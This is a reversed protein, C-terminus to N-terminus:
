LAVLAPCHQSPSMRLPPTHLRCHLRPATHGTGPAVGPVAHATPRTAAHSTLPLTVVQVGPTDGVVSVHLPMSSSQSPCISSPSALVVHEFGVRNIPRPPLGSVMHMFPPAGWCPTSKHSRPACTQVANSCKWKQRRHPVNVISSGVLVVPAVTVVFQPLQPPSYQWSPVGLVQM